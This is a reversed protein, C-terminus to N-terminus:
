RGRGSASSGLDGSGVLGEFDSVGIEAGGTGVDADLM